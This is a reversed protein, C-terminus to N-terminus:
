DKFCIYQICSTLGLSEAENEGARQGNVLVIKQPPPPSYSRLGQTVGGGARVWWLGHLRKGCAPSDCPDARGTHLPYAEIPFSSDHAHYSGALSYVLM